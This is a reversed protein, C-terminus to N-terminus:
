PGKAQRTSTGSGLHQWRDPPSPLVDAANLKSHFLCCCCFHRRTLGTCTVSNDATKCNVIRPFCPLSNRACPVCGDTGALVTGEHSTDPAKHMHPHRMTHLSHQTVRQVWATQVQAGDDAASHPPWQPVKKWLWLWLAATPLPLSVQKSTGTDDGAPQKASM